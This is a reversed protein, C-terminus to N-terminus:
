ELICGAGRQKGGGYDTVDTVTGTCIVLYGKYDAEANASPM